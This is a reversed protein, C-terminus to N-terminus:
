WILLKNRRLEDNIEKNMRIVAERAAEAYDKDRYRKNQYAYNISRSAAIIAGLGDKNFCSVIDSGKGGQTGFGPVLFYAKPMLKRLVKAEKPYTAGVVAGVSSYGYEGITRMGWINVQEALIEYLRKRKTRIVIQLDQIEKSSPNSTKVLIFIGKGYNVLDNLFPKIGDSGLYPNVTIADLDFVPCKKNNISVRGIHGDSYAEATSGIDNRKADEIVILGKGRGYKVTELFVKMGEIGYREYFAVQPKIAPVIDYVADILRSNFEIISKCIDKLSKAPQPKLCSPLREHVPDLGVIIHSKKEMIKSILSDSFSNNM